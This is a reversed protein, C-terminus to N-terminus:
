FTISFTFKNNAEGREVEYDDEYCSFLAFVMAVIVIKKIM